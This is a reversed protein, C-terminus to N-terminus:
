EHLMSERRAKKMKKRGRHVVGALAIAITANVCGVTFNAPMTFTHSFIAIGLNSIACIANTVLLIMMFVNIRRYHAIQGTADSYIEFPGDATKKRFFVWRMWFCVPEAGADRMFDLYRQSEPHSPLNELLELRYTYEGPIGEQFFYTCWSYHVLMLGKAAMENLWAEEKDYSVYAKHIKTMM